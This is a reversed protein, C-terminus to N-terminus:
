IKWNKMKPEVAKVLGEGLTKFDELIAQVNPVMKAESGGTNQDAM